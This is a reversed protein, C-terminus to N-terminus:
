FVPEFIRPWSLSPAYFSPFKEEPATVGQAEDLLAAVELSWLDGRADGTYWRVCDRLVQLADRDKGARLHVIALDVYRRAPSRAIGPANLSDRVDLHIADELLTKQREDSSRMGRVRALENLLFLEDRLLLSRPEAALRREAEEIHKLLFGSDTCLQPAWASGLEAYRRILTPPCAGAPGPTRTIGSLTTLQKMTESPDHNELAAVALYFRARNGGEGATVEIDDLYADIAPRLRHAQHYALGLWRSKHPSLFRVTQGRWDSEKLFLREIDRVRGQQAYLWALFGEPILNEVRYWVTFPDRECSSANLTSFIELGPKLDGLRGAVYGACAAARLQDVPGGTRLLSALAESCLDDAARFDGLRRAAIYGRLTVLKSLDREHASLGAPSWLKEYRAFGEKKRGLFFDIDASILACSRRAAGEISTSPAIDSGCVAVAEDAFARNGTRLWEAVLETALESSELEDKQAERRLEGLRIGRIGQLEQVEARELRGSAKRLAESAWQSHGTERYAGLSALFRLHRIREPISERSEIQQLIDLAKRYEGLREHISALQLRLSQRLEEQDSDSEARTRALSSEAIHKAENLWGNALYVQVALNASALGDKAASLVDVDYALKYDASQGLVWAKVLELRGNLFAELWRDDTDALIQAYTSEGSWFRGGLVHLIGLHIRCIDKWEESLDPVSACSQGIGVAEDLKDWAYMEHIASTAIIASATDRLVTDIERLNSLNVTYSKRHHFGGGRPAFFFSPFAAREWINQESATSPVHTAIVNLQLTDKGKRGYGWIVLKAGTSAGYRLAESTQSSQRPIRKLLLKDALRFSHMRDRLEETKLFPTREVEGTVDNQIPFDLIAVGFADAAFCYVYGQWWLFFATSVLFLLSAAAPILWKRWGRRSLPPPEVKAPILGREESVLSQRPDGYHVYYAWIPPGPKDIFKQRAKWLAEGISAGGVLECYFAAAFAASPEPQVRAVTGIYHPVGKSLFARHLDTVYAESPQVSSRASDCANAFILLPLTKYASVGVVDAATLTGEACEWGSKAKGSQEERYEGHGIFHVVDYKDKLDQLLDKAKRKELSEVRFVNGLVEQVVKKEEKPRLYRTKGLAILAGHGTRPEKLNRYVADFEEPTGELCRGVCFRQCLFQEGDWLLEWPIWALKSTLELLLYSGPPDTDHLRKILPPPLINDTFAIAERKLNEFIFSTKSPSLCELVKQASDLVSDTDFSRHSDFRTAPGTYTFSFETASAKVNLQYNPVGM